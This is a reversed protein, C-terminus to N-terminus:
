GHFNLMIFSRLINIKQQNGADCVGIIANQKGILCIKHATHLQRFPQIWLKSGQATYLTSQRGDLILFHSHATWTLRVLASLPVLCVLQAAAKQGWQLKKMKEGRSFITIEQVTSSSPQPLISAAFLSALPVIIKKGSQDLNFYLCHFDFYVVTSCQNSPSNDYWM